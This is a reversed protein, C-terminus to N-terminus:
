LASQVQPVAAVKRDLIRQRKKPRLFMFLLGV